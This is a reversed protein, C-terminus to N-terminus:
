KGKGAPAGEAAAVQRTTKVTTIVNNPADLLEVGEISLDGVRIAKGIELNDINIEVFDPLAKPLARVKLKRVKTVLKGGAKVGVSNGSIKVPIEIEVAKDGALELFDIHLIEDTVPHFQIDKMIAQYTKGDISLDVTHVEHNYVLNKFEKSPASFHLPEKGGYLVCLVNGQDRLVKAASKGNTERLSGSISLSKM